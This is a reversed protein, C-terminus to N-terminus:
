GTEVTETAGGHFTKFMESEDILGWVAIFARTITEPRFRFVSRCLECKKGIRMGLPM